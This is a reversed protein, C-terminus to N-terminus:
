TLIHGVFFFLNFPSSSYPSSLFKIYFIFVKALSVMELSAWTVCALIIALPTSVYQMSRVNM